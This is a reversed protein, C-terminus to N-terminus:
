AGHDRRELYVTVDCIGDSSVGFRGRYKRVAVPLGHRERISLRAQAGRACPRIRRYDRNYMSAFISEKERVTDWVPIQRRVSLNLFREPYPSVIEFRVYGRILRLLRILM